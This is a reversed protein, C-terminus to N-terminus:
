RVDDAYTTLESKDNARMALPPPNELTSLGTRAHVRAYWVAGEVPSMQSAQGARARGCGSWM